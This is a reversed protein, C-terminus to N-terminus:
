GGRRIADHEDKVRGFEEAGWRDRMAAVQPEFVDRAAEAGLLDGLTAWGTALATYARLRDGSQEAAMAIALSSGVYAAPNVSRLAAARAQEAADLAVPLDGADLATSATLMAVDAVATDDGSQLAAERAIDLARDWGPRHEGVLLTAIEVLLRLESEDDDITIALARADDLADTADDVRGAAALAQARKRLLAIQGASDFGAAGEVSTADAFAKAATMNDGIALLSEGLEVLAVAHEDRDDGSCAVARRARRLAGKNDGLARSLGAAQRMTRSEAIGDGRERQETALRDLASLAEDLRGADVLVAIDRYRVDDGATTM